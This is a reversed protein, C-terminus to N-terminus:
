HLSITKELLHHVEFVEMLDNWSISSKIVHIFLFNSDHCKLVRGLGSCGQKLHKSKYSTAIYSLTQVNINFRLDAYAELQHLSQLKETM